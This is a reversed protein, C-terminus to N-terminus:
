DPAPEDTASVRARHAELAERQGALPIDAAELAERVATRLARAVAWQRAPATRQVLKV